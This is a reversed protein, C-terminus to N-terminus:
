TTFFCVCILVMTVMPIFSNFFVIKNLKNTSLLISNSSSFRKKSAHVTAHAAALTKPSTMAIHLFILTIFQKKRFTKTM